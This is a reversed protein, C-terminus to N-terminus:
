KSGNATSSKLRYGMRPVYPPQGGSDYVPNMSQASGVVFDSGGGDEVMNGNPGFVYFGNGETVTVYGYANATIRTLNAPPSFGPITTISLDSKSIKLAQSGASNGVFLFGSNAAMFTHAATNSVLPLNIVNTLYVLTTDNSLSLTDTKRYVYLTVANGNGMDVAYISRTVVNGNVVPEGELLAGLIMFPGISGSGYCGETQQTSGCVTWHVTTANGNGDTSMNYTTYLGADPAAPPTTQAHLPLMATCALLIGAALSRYRSIPSM